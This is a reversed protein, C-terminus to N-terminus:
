TLSDAHPGHVRVGDRGAGKAAYMARDADIMLGEASLEGAGSDSVVAVGVSATVGADLGRVVDVLARAVLEAAEASEMPLLVAFEDGGLRALVDTERLRDGLAGAVRVLLADGAHHGSRTTSTRSGTSTWCCCRARRATAGCGRSTRRWAGGRVRAPEAARDARRPRRPPAAAGRVRAARDRGADARARAAAHGGRRPGADGARGGVGRARGPGSSGTSPGSTATASRRGADRGGADRDDDHVIELPGFALLEDAGFGSLECLADNVRLFRGDLTALFMGFPARDFAVEFRREAARQETVDRAVVLAGAIQGQLGLHPAVTLELERAAGDPGGGAATVNLTSEEGGLAMSLAADLVGYAEAPLTGGEILRCSLENDYVAVVVRPLNGLM